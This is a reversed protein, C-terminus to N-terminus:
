ALGKDILGSIGEIIKKADEGFKDTVNKRFYGGAPMPGFYHGMEYHFSAGPKDKKKYRGPSGYEVLIAHPAKRYDFGVMSPAPEGQSLGLAAMTGGRRRLKKAVVGKRLNGTPGKPLARKLKSARKKAVDLVIPESKEPSVAEILKQMQAELEEIGQIEIDMSDAM